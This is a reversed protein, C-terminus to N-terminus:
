HTSVSATTQRTGCRYCAEDAARVTAGCNACSVLLDAEDRPCFLAGPAYRLQDLPCYPIGRPPPGTAESETLQPLAIPTEMPQADALGVQSARLWGVVLWALYLFLIGLVMLPFLGLALGASENAIWEIAARIADM